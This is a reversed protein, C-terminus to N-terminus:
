RTEPQTERVPHVTILVTQTPEDPRGLSHAISVITYRAFGTGGDIEVEEDLRPVAILPGQWIVEGTCAIRCSIGM